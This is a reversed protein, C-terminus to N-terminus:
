GRPGAGGEAEEAEGGRAEVPIERVCEEPRKDERLGLFTPHRIGGDRTWETFRVECVLRPEAWHHGRGAPPGSAFPSTARELRRVDRGDLALVDFVVASVPVTGRAHEVDAPRTLGMRAQLLQFSARGTEDLAVVEADLCFRDLPLARLAATVEPYRGAFDQGS